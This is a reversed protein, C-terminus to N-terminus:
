VQKKKMAQKNNHMWVKFVQRKVGVESCFRQVEQDDHKQIRWGLKEALEMMKEKQEQNFKTRFRKKSEGAHQVAAAAKSQSINHDHDFMHLDESSSEAGGFAMMVPAAIPRRHHHVPYQPHDSNHHNRHNHHHHPNHNPLVTPPPPPPLYHQPLVVSNNNNSNRSLKYNPNYQSEGDIEKRHFNRHCECAACKLAEETGDDGSPMFEGCGDLVHGGKSAAHNRLCERYRVANVPAIPTIPDPNTNPNPDPNSINERSPKNPQCSLHDLTKNPAPNFTTNGHNIQHHDRPSSSLKSSSDRNPSSYDLTSNSRMM